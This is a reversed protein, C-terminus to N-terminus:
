KNGEPLLKVLEKYAKSIKKMADYDPRQTSLVDGYKDFHDILPGVDNSFESLTSQVNEIYEFAWDRSDSLFKIFNEKHIDNDAVDNSIKNNNLLDQVSTSALYTKILQLNAEKLKKNLFIYAIIFCLLTTLSVIAIINSIM